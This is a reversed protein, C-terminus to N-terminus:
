KKSHKKDTKRRIKEIHISYVTYKGRHFIMNLYHLNFEQTKQEGTCLARFNTCTKPAIDDYMKMIIREQEEDGIKVDFYCYVERGEM